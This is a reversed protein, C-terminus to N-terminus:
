RREGRLQVLAPNEGHLCQADYGTEKLADPHEYYTLSMAAKPLALLIAFPGQELRELFLLRAPSPLRSLRTPRGLVLLPLWELVAVVLVFLGRTRPGAHGLFSELDTLLWTLRDAPLGQGRDFLGEALARVTRELPLM